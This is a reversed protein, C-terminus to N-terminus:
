ARLDYLIPPPFLSSKSNQKLKFLYGHDRVEGSDKLHLTYDLTLIGTEFLVEMRDIYPKMTHEAEVYHFEENDREGRYLAKVWFTEAHKKALASRLDELVWTMDHETSSDIDDIDRYMQRLYDNAYDVDLFLGRSNPKAGSITHRLALRGDSDTYGRKQLLGRASELPSIGWKPIKSFLQDKSRQTRNNSIRTSKLEIGKYDPAANANPKIGLLNELTMGVGTDGHQGSPTFGLSSIHGLRKILESAVASIKNAPRPIVNALANMFDSEKSCNVIYLEGGSCILAILNNASAKEGLKSIWLRPDGNKTKPRYLSIKTELAGCPAVFLANVLHKHENGQLQDAYDHIENRTLFSIISKHADLISKKLGNATPVLFCVDHGASLIHSSCEEICTDSLSLM